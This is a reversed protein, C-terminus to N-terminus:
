DTVLEKEALEIIAKNWDTGQYSVHHGQCYTRGRKDYKHTLYIENKEHTLIGLVDKAVRDYKEFAKKRKKFDDYTEDSKQKDLNRWKNQITQAVDLNLALKVQNMRNLHDLCVDEDTHNDRLIVSGKGTLYGSDRNKKLIKPPIVMPLPYQFRDLEAQLRAGIEYIVVFEYCDEQFDTERLTYNLLKAKVAQELLDATAQSDDCHHRLCGVLTSVNARKHVAIQALLDFGFDEPIEHKNMMEKFNIAQANRFATRVRSFLQNNDFIKELELQYENRSSTEDIILPQAAHTM